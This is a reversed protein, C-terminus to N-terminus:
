LQVLYSLGHREFGLAEYFRHADTRRLNSSLMLKYCGAMRSAEIAFEMMSRGIGRGRASSAVVVDEVVAVPACRYGLADFILLAFTGIISKDGTDWVYIAYNPYQSIRGFQQRLHALTPPPGDSELELYLTLLQPLDDGTAARIPGAIMRCNYTQADRCHYAAPLLESGPAPEHAAPAWAAM